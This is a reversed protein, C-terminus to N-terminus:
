FCQPFSAPDPANPGDFVIANMRQIAEAVERRDQSTIGIHNERQAAWRVLELDTTLRDADIHPALDGLREALRVLLLDRMSDTTHAM